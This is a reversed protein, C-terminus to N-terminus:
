KAAEIRSPMSRTGTTGAHVTFLYVTKGEFLGTFLVSRYNAAENSGGLVVDIPQGLLEKESLGLLENVNASVQCISLDNRRLVLLVGHPQIMGPIHIPETECTTLDIEAM